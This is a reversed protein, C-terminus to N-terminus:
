LTVKKGIVKQVRKYADFIAQIRNENLKGRLDKLFLQYSVGNKNVYEKM